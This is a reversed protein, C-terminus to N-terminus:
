QKLEFYLLLTRQYSEGNDDSVIFYRNDRHRTLGEFNDLAWGDASSLRALPKADAGGSGDFTVEQLTVVLPHWVSHWAREMVIIRGDPLAEMAVVENGKEEAIVYPWSQGDLAHIRYGSDVRLPKQPITLVGKDPHRTVAELANNPKKYNSVDKLPPPLQYRGNQRGDPAYRIVRPTREFSIVLESDGRKGNDAHQVYAGEADRWRGTLPKGKQDRLKYSALLEVSVLQGDRFAPRLHHIRGRDSIAYLLQEDIDWALASLGSIPTGDVTVRDLEVAGLPVVEPKGSGTFLTVPTSIGEALCVLPFLLLLVILRTM